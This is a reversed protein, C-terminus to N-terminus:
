CSCASYFSCCSWVASNFLTQCKHLMAFFLCQPFSGIMLAYVIISGSICDEQFILSNLKSQKKQIFFHLHRKLYNTSCFSKYTLEAYCFTRCYLIIIHWNWRNQLPFGWAPPLGAEQELKQIHSIYSKKQFPHTHTHTDRVNQPDQTHFKLWAQYCSSAWVEQFFKLNDLSNSYKTLNNKFCKNSHLDPVLM